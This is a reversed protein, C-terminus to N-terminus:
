PKLSSSKQIELIAMTETFSSKLEGPWFAMHAIAMVQRRDTTTWRYVKEFIKKESVRFWNSGFKAVIMRLIDLKVFTESTGASWSIYPWILFLSSIHFPVM